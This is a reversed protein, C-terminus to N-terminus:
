RELGWRLSLAKLIATQLNEDMNLANEFYSVRPRQGDTWCSYAWVCAGKHGSSLPLKFIEDWEITETSFDIFPEVSKMLYPDAGFIALIARMQVSHKRQTELISLAFSMTFELQKRSEPAHRRRMTQKTLLRTFKSYSIIGYETKEAALGMMTLTCSKLQGALALALGLRIVWVYVRVLGM